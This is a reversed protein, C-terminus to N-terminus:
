WAVLFLADRVMDSDSAAELAELDEAGPASAEMVRSLLGKAEGKGAKIAGLTFLGSDIDDHLAGQSASQLPFPSPPPLFLSSSPILPSLTLRSNLRVALRAAGEATAEGESGRVM